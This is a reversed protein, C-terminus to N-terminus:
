DALVSAGDVQAAVPAAEEQARHRKAYHGVREQGTLAGIADIVDDTVDRLVERDAARAALEPWRMPSGIRLVVSKFPRPVLAGVPQVDATGIIGVPLVPVDCGLAMRAIGTRGKYLRGDPSRTGEPYIALAGGAELVERASELARDSASGGDRRIPIQGAMRFFWATRPNDFYEAKALFTVRRGVVLPLFLSDIFSIHNAAIIVPGRRPIRAKGDVQVRFALRLLPTLIARIIWYGM